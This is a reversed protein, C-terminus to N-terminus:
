GPSDENTRPSIARKTSPRRSATPVQSASIARHFEKVAHPDADLAASLRRVVSLRPTSKGGEILYITSPAVSARQALERISLLRNTRAERLSMM